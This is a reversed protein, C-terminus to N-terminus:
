TCGKILVKERKPYECCLGGEAVPICKVMFGGLSDVHSVLVFSWNLQVPPFFVWLCEAVQKISTGWNEDTTRVTM